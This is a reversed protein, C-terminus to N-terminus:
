DFWALNDFYDEVGEGETIFPWNGVEDAFTLTALQGELTSVEMLMRGEHFRVPYIYSDAPLEAAQGDMTCPVAKVLHCLIGMGTLYDWETELEQATPIGSVTFWDSDPLLEDGRYARTGYMTGLLDCREEAWLAGDKWACSGELTRGRVLQGNEPHVEATVYSDSGTDVEVLLNCWPSAPDLDLVSASILEDGIDLIVTSDGWSVATAWADDPRLTFYVEEERGDQDLDCSFHLGQDPDPQEEPRYTLFPGRPTAAPAETEPAEATAAPAETEVPAPTADGATAQTTVATGAPVAAVAEAAARGCGTLLLAFLLIWAIRKM